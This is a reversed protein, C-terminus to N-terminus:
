LLRLVPAKYLVEPSSHFIMGSAGRTVHGCKSCKVVWECKHSIVLHGTIMCDGNAIKEIPKGLFNIPFDAPFIALPCPMPNSTWEGQVGLSKGKGGHLSSFNEQM